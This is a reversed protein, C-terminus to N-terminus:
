EGTGLRVTALEGRRIAVQVVPHDSQTGVVLPRQDRETPDTASASWNHGPPLSLKAETDGVGVELVRAIWGSGDTARKIGQLIVHDPEVTFWSRTAPMQGKGGSLVRAVLPAGAAYGFRASRVDDPAGDYAQIRYRFTLEGGQQRRYNTFWYNTMVYSLLLGNDIQVDDHWCEPWLDGFVVVPAEISAWLIGGARDWMEVWHYISYFDAASYRLQDIGPRMSTFPIELRCHPSDFAFPFAFHIGEPEDTATKTVTNAIDIRDLGAYRTYSQEIVPANVGETRTVLREFVPGTIRRTVVAPGAPVVTKDAPSRPSALQSPM